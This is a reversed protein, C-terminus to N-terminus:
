FPTTDSFKSTNNKGSSPTTSVLLFKCPEKNQDINNDNWIRRQYIGLKSLKPHGPPNIPMSCCDNFSIPKQRRM